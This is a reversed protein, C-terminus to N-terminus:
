IVLFETDVRFIAAPGSTMPTLIRRKFKGTFLVSHSVGTEDYLHDQLTIVPTPTGNPNNLNYFYELDAKTGYNTDSEVARCQITYQKSKYISGYTVDHGGSLTREASQSKDLPEDFREDNEVFFRKSVTGNSNTLVIYNRM